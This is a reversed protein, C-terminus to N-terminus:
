RRAATPGSCPPAEADQLDRKLAITRDMEAIKETIVHGSPRLMAESRCLPALLRKLRDLQREAPAKASDYPALYIENGRLLYGRQSSEASQM